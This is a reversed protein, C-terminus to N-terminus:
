YDGRWTESNINQFSSLIYNLFWLCSLFHAKLQIQFPHPTSSAPLYVVAIRSPSIQFSPLWLVSIKWVKCLWLCRLIKLFLLLHLFPVRRQLTPIPRPVWSSPTRCPRSLWGQKSTTFPHSNLYCQCLCPMNHLFLGELFVQASHSPSLSYSLALVQCGETDTNGKKYDM